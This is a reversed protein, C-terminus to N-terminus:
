TESCYSNNIAQKLKNLNRCKAFAACECNFQSYFSYLFDKNNAYILGDKGCLSEMIRFGKESVAEGFVSRITTGNCIVDTLADVLGENLLLMLPVFVNPNNPDEIHKERYKRKIGVSMIYLNIDKSNVPLINSKHIDKFSLDNNLHKEECERTIPFAQYYAVIDNNDDLAIVTTQINKELMSLIQNRPINTDIEFESSNAPFIEADFDAIKDYLSTPINFGYLIQM